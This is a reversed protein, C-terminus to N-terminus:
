YENILSGNASVIGSSIINNGLQRLGAGRQSMTSGSASTIGTNRKQAMPLPAKMQTNFPGQKPAMINEQESPIRSQSSNYKLLQPPVYSQQQISIFSRDQTTTEAMSSNRAIKIPQALERANKSNVRQPIQTTTSIEQSYQVFRPAKEDNMRQLPGGLLRFKSMLQADLFYNMPRIEEFFQKYYLFDVTPFIRKFAGKRKYEDETDKLVQREERSLETVQKPQVSGKRQAGGGASRRAASNRVPGLQASIDGVMSAGANTYASLLKKTNQGEGVPGREDLYVMGALNFLDSILNSKIKQDLPSDCNLSPSLNIELLWPEFQDDILIDFGLLEFCNGPYPVFMETANNIVNEGSILTKIIIDEIKKFIRDHDIGLQAMKRRLATLSWKSGQDDVEADTNNIFNANYKNLSYNTLHVYRSQKKSTQNYKVTAFRTLGEEYVYVRLPNISTIGVYVRLDFKYDDILMPNAIYQSAIMSQKQPIEAINNTLFIGKGQSSASPKVIWQREPMQDMAKQLEMIENPLIFTLPVFGYHKHGHFERMRALLRYMCDKRTIETSKPFHNVKQYRTLAQYTQSKINSSAWLVTFDQDRKTAERFGNDELLYRILRAEVNNYLKFYYGKDAPKYPRISIPDIYPRFCIYKKFVKNQIGPPQKLLQMQEYHKTSGEITDADQEQDLTTVAHSQSKQHSIMQRKDPSEKEEEKQSEQVRELPAAPGTPKKLPPLKSTVAPNKNLIDIIDDLDDFDEM